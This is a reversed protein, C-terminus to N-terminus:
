LIKYWKKQMFFRIYIHLRLVCFIKKLLLCLICFILFANCASHLAIAFMIRKLKTTIAQNSQKKYDANFVCANYFVSYVDKKPKLAPRLFVRDAKTKTLLVTKHLFRQWLDIFGNYINFVATRRGVLHCLICFTFVCFTFLVTWFVCENTCFARLPTIGTSADFAQLICIIRAFRLKIWSFSFSTYM